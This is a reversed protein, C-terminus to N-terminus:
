PVRRYPKRRFLVHGEEGSRINTTIAGGRSQVLGDFGEDATVERLLITACPLFVSEQVLSTSVPLKVCGPRGDHRLM